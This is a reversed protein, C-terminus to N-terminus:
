VLWKFFTSCDCIGSIKVKKGVHWKENSKARITDFQPFDLIDELRFTENNKSCRLWKLYFFDFRFLQLDTRSRYKEFLRINM